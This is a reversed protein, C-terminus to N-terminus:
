REHPGGIENRLLCLIPKPSSQELKQRSHHSEVTCRQSTMLSSPGAVM